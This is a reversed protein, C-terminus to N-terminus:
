RQSTLYTKIDVYEFINPFYAKDILSRAGKGVILLTDTSKILKNELAYTIIGNVASDRDKYRRPFVHAQVGKTLALQRKYVPTSVFAIIEHNINHRALLRATMGQESVVIIKAPALHAIVEFAANAMAVGISHEDLQFSNMIEPILYQENEQTIKIMTEVTEVPYKGATTEGSTMVADTGDLVANAVDTIEARTPLPKDIMSELMNTATIVPKAAENCKYIFEKQLIPLRELPVEAGLDGRAIMIGDSEALIEDFNEIGQQDEIKAILKVPSDGIHRRITKMDKANRIFSCAIFEWGDQVAFKIQEIDRKTVPPNSLQTGPVNMGKGGKIQTGNIVKTYIKGGSVREVELKAEGKDIYIMRGKRIEKYLEPYTVPYILHEPKSGIVVKDGPKIKIVEEFKNLRLEHGKIDLMMAVDDSISRVLDAVRKLEPVDAFAGNIRAVTMGGAIMKKLVSPPWSSPGITCVLKTNRYQASM